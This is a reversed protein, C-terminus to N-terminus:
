YATYYVACIIRIKLALAITIFTNPQLFALHMVKKKNNNQPFPILLCQPFSDTNQLLQLLLYADSFASRLIQLCLNAFM